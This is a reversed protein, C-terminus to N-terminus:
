DTTFTVNKIGAAACANMVDIVRQHRAEDEAAITIMAETRNNECAAKYRMLMSRLDPLEQSEASDFERSNLFVRNQHNIEIVQEDPMEVEEAQAVAGPLRIGLDAESRVLSATAMFYVLLLFVMDILPAVNLEPDEIPNVPVKM